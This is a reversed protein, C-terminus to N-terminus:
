VIEVQAVPVAASSLVGPLPPSTQSAQISQLVANHQRLEDRIDRLLLAVEAPANEETIASAAALAAAQVATGRDLINAAPPALSGSTGPTTTRCQRMAWVLRHFALPNKLGVISLEHEGKATRNNTDVHV